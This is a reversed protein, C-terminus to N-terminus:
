QIDIKNVVKETSHYQFPLCNCLELIKEMYKRTSCDEYTEVNQCNRINQDLGLFAETVKIDKVVNLNYQGEGYM